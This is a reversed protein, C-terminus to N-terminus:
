LRKEPLHGLDDLLQFRHKGLIGVKLGKADKQSDQLVRIWRRHNRRKMLVHNELVLRLNGSPILLKNQAVYGDLVAIIKQVNNRFELGIPGDQRGAAFIREPLVEVNQGLEGFLVIFRLLIRL